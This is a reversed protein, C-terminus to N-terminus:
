YDRMGMDRGCCLKTMEDRTHDFSFVLERNSRQISSNSSRGTSIPIDDCPVAATTDYLYSSLIICDLVWCVLLGASMNDTSNVIRPERM